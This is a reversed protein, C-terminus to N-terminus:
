IAFLRCQGIGWGPRLDKLAAAGRFRKETNGPLWGPRRVEGVKLPHGALVLRHSVIAAAVMMTESMRATLFWPAVHEMTVVPLLLCNQIRWPLELGILHAQSSPLCYRRQIPSTGKSGSPDLYAGRVTFGLRVVELLNSAGSALVYWRICRRPKESLRSIRLVSVTDVQWQSKKPQRPRHFSPRTHLQFV